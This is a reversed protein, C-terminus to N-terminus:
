ALLGKHHEMIDENKIKPFREGIDRADMARSWPTDPEHTLDSLEEGTYECYLEWTRDLLVKTLDPNDYDGDISPVSQDWSDIGRVDTPIPSRGFMKFENYVEPVVPGFQWAEVTDNFLPRELLALSMGHAAYVLKVLKMPTLDRCGTQGAKRIFYNAVAMARETM